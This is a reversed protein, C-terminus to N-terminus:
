LGGASIAHRSALRRPLVQKPALDTPQTFAHHQPTSHPELAHSLRVRHRTIVVSITTAPISQNIFLFISQAQAKPYHNSPGETLALCHDQIQTSNALFYPTKPETFTSLSIGQHTANSKVLVSNGETGFTVNRLHSKVPLLASAGGPSDTQKGGPDGSGSNSWARVNASKSLPGPIMKQMYVWDVGGKTMNRAESDKVAMWILAM